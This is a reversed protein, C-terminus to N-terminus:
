RMQNIEHTIGDLVPLLHNEELITTAIRSHYFTVHTSPSGPTVLTIDTEGIMLTHPLHHTMIAPRGIRHRGHAWATLAPLYTIHTITSLANLVLQGFHQGVCAYCAHVQIGGSAAHRIFLDQLVELLAPRIHQYASLHDGLTEVELMHRHHADQIGIRHEALGIEATMFTGELHHLLHCAPCASLATLSLHHQLGSIRFRGDHPLHYQMIVLTHVFGLHLFATEKAIRGEAAQHTYIHFM